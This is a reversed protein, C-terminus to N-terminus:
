IHPNQLRTCVEAVGSGEPGPAGAQERTRVRTFRFTMELGFSVWRLAWNGYEFNMRFEHGRAERPNCSVSALFVFVQSLLLSSDRALTHHPCVQTSPIIVSQQLNAFRSYRIRVLFLVSVMDCDQCGIMSATSAMTRGCSLLSSVRSSFNCRRVSGLSIGRAIATHWSASASTSLSSCGFKQAANCTWSPL